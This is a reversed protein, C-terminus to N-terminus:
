AGSIPTIAPITAPVSNVPITVIPTPNVAIPSVVPNPITTIPTGIPTTIPTGIPTTIPIGIPTTIPIGIPTNIPAGITSGIPGVAPTGIPVVGPTVLPSPVPGIPSVGVVPQPQGNITGPNGATGQGHNCPPKRPFIQSLISALDPFFPFGGGMPSGMQFPFDMPFPFPFNPGIPMEYHRTVPAQDDMQSMQTVSMFGGDDQNQDQALRNKHKPEPVPTSLVKLDFLSYKYKIEFNAM